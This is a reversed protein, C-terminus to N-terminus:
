ASGRLDALRDPTRFVLGEARSSGAPPSHPMSGHGGHGPM